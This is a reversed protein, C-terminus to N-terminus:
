GRLGHLGMLSCPFQAQSKRLLVVTRYQETSIQVDRGEILTMTVIYYYISYLLKNM